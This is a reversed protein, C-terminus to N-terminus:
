FVNNGKYEAIFAEFLDASLAPSAYFGQYQHCGHSALFNLQSQTEVGEAVVTLNLTRGIGIITATIARDDKDEDLDAVFSRDIKLVDLPFRRLYSLSSYGAGFDDVALRIGLDKIQYLKKISEAERRMLISETLELELNKAPFSTKNLADRILQTIDEDYLQIASINVAITIDLGQALWHKGQRCAENLVWAGLKKILGTEEAISIFEIPMIMGAKPDIWRVLAEAGTVKGTFVDLKPQYHLQLENNNIAERLRSELKLRRRALKTLQESYYKVVGRGSNKAQYMAADAHKLLDQANDGHEPYLSIGISTGISVQANHQDLDWPSNIAEIINNAVKAAYESQEVDELLVVFEDGGLRAIMDNARLTKRLRDALQKLLDDGAMHGYSDNVNKFRDLDMLLLAIKKDHRKAREIAHSIHSALMMRNPLGTLPDHNALFALREETNKLNTIDTFVSVYHSIKQHVDKVVTISLIGPHIEGQKNRNWIESQFEGTDHLASFMAKFYAEDHFGSNLINPNKGLIEPASYGEIDTFAKNVMVVNIKHDTVLIAERTNEIVIGAMFLSQQVEKFDTVDTLTGVFGNFHGKADLSPQAQCKVWTTKANQHVFRLEVNFSSKDRLSQKFTTKVHQSDETHLTAPFVVGDAVEATTPSTITRWIDNYYTLKGKEDTRFIGTPSNSALNHFLAESETLAKATEKRLSENDEIELAYSIDAALEDLLSIEKDGFAHTQHSYLSFNGMIKGYRVIPLAVMSQYGSLLAKQVWADEFECQTLDNSIVHKGTNICQIAPIKENQTSINEDLLTVFPTAKGAYTICKLQSQDQTLLGVWALCFGGDEVAIKSVENFLVVSGPKRTILQNSNTVMSLLQNLTVIERDAKKFATIDTNTGAIRLAKGSADRAIFGRTLIDLYHGDKHRLRLEVEYQTEQSAVVERLHNILPTIDDPHTLTQWHTPDIVDMNQEYGLMTWWRDSHYATNTILDLDWWGDNSGKVVLDLREESASLAREAIVRETINEIAIVYTDAGGADNKVANVEIHTYVVDGSRNIFRKDRRFYNLEGSKLKAFYEADIANEDPHNFTNALGQKFEKVSYGLIECLRPNVVTWRNSNADITGFGIFPMSHFKTLLKNLEVDKISLALKYASKQQKWLLYLVLAIIFATVLASISTWFLLNNLNALVEQQSIEAFYHWQSNPILTSFAYAEEGILNKGFHRQTDTAYLSKIEYPTLVVGESNFDHPSGNVVTLTNDERKVFAVDATAYTNPWTQLAPLENKAFGTQILIYAIIDDRNTNLLQTKQAFIPVLVHLNLQQADDIFFDSHQVAKKEHVTNKLHNALAPSEDTGIHLSARGAEDFLTIGDYNYTNIATKFLDTIFPESSLQDKQSHEQLRKQVALVLQPNAGMMKGEALKYNLWSKIHEVKIATMSALHNFATAEVKPKQQHYIGLNALPIVLLVVFIWCLYVLKNKLFQLNNQKAECVINRLNILLIHLVSASILLISFEIFSNTSISLITNKPLFDVLNHKFAIFAAGALLYVLTISAPPTRSLIYRCLNKLM